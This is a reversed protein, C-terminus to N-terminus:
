AAAKRRRIVMFGVIGLVGAMAILGWESLTPITTDPVVIFQILVLSGPVVLSWASTNPDAQLLPLLNKPIANLDTIPAISGSGSNINSWPPRSNSVVLQNTGPEYVVLNQQGVWTVIGNGNQDVGCAPNFFGLGQQFPPGQGLDTVVVQNANNLPIPATLGRVSNDRVNYWACFINGTGPVSRCCSEKLPGGRLDTDVVRSVGTGTDVLEIEYQNPDTSSYLTYYNGNQLGGAFRTAGDTAGSADNVIAQLNWNQSNQSSFWLIQNTGDNRGAINATNPDNPDKFSRATSFDTPNATVQVRNNNSCINNPPGDCVLSFLEGGQGFGYIIKNDLVLFKDSSGFINGVGPATTNEIFDGAQPNAQPFQFTLVRDNNCLNQPIEDCVTVIDLVDNGLFDQINQTAARDEGFQAGEGDNVILIELAHVKESFFGFCMFLLAFSFVTARLVSM